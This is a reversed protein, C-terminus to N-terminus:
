VTFRRLHFNRCFRSSGGDDDWFPSPPTFGRLVNDQQRLTRKALLQHLSAIGYLMPRATDNMEEQIHRVELLLLQHQGRLLLRQANAEILAGLTHALVTVQTRVTNVTEAAAGIGVLTVQTDIDHLLGDLQEAVQQLQAATETSTLTPAFAALLAGRESLRLAALMEPVINDTTHRVARGLQTSMYLALSVALVLIVAIGAFASVLATQSSLRRPRLQWIRQVPWRM